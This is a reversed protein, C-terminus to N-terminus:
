AEWEQWTAPRVPASPGDRTREHRVCIIATLLLAALTIATLIYHLPHPRM